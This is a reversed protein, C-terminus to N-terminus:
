RSRGNNQVINDGTIILQTEIINGNKDLGKCCIKNNESAIAYRLIHYIYKSDGYGKPIHILWDPNNAAETFSLNRENQLTEIYDQTGYLGQNYAIIAAFISNDLNILNISTIAACTRINGEATDARVLTVDSPIEINGNIIKNEGAKTVPLIKEYTETEFNYCKLIKANIEEQLTNYRNPLKEDIVIWSTQLQCLGMSGGSNTTESHTGYNEQAGIYALLEPDIGYMEGYKEFFDNYNTARDYYIECGELETNGIDFTNTIINTISEPEEFTQDIVKEQNNNTETKIQEEQNSEPIIQEEQTSETLNQEEITTVSTEELIINNEEKPEEIHSESIVTNQQEQETIESNTNEITPQEYAATPTTNQNKNQEEEFEIKLKTDDKEKSSDKDNIDTTPIEPLPIPEPQSSLWITTGGVTLTAILATSAIIQGIEIHKNTRKVRKPSTIIKKIRKYIKKNNLEITVKDGLNNIKCTNPNRKIYNIIRKTNNPKSKYKKTGLINKLIIECTDDNYVTIKGYKSMINM